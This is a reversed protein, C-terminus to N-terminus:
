NISTRGGQGPLTTTANPPGNKASSFQPKNATYYSACDSLIRNLRRQSLAFVNDPGNAVFPDLLGASACKANAFRPTKLFSEPNWIFERSIGPVM